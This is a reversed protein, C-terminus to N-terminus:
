EIEEYLVATEVDMLRCHLDEMMMRALAIRFTVDNVVPAFNDTFDVGPVQSYGLTLLRARYTGDRKIKFVWKCGILRRDNPVDLKCINNWVKRIWVTYSKQLQKEGNEEKTNVNITGHKM